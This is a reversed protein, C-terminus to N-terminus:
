AGANPGYVGEVLDQDKGSGRLLELNKQELAELMKIGTADAPCTRAYHEKFAAFDKIFCHGGAGRGTKHVPRIYYNSIMPDAEAAKQIEEWSAGMSQSLDYLTNFLMLQFYGNVNHMYKIIEAETSDCTM